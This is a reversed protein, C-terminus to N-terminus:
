LDPSFLGRVLRHAHVRLPYFLVDVLAELPDGVFLHYVSVSPGYFVVDEVLSGVAVVRGDGLLHLVLGVFRAASSPQIEGVGSVPVVLVSPPSTVSASPFAEERGGNTISLARVGPGFTGVALVRTANM